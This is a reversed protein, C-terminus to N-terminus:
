KLKAAQARVVAAPVDYPKEEAVMGLNMTFYTAVTAGHRVVQIHTTGAEKAGGSETAFAVSEDGADPAKEETIKTIKQDTGQLTAPFGGSCGKVADVVSTFARQAGDGEYSSLGVLTIDVDMADTLAKAFDDESMEDMSKSADASPKKEQTVLVSTGAATDGPPLGGMAYAVPLCEKSSSRIEDKSKPSRKDPAEVKYGDVDGQAIIAKKLEAAGLAKVAQGGSASPEKSGKADGSGGGCGTVLALSLAGVAVTTAARM